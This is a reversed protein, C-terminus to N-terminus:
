LDSASSERIIRQKKIAFDITSALQELDVPKNLYDIAGYKMVERALDLDQVGTLVVVGVQYSMKRIKKLVELGSMGPMKLDLLMLDYHKASLIELAEQGSLATETEYGKEAMFEALVDCVSLEDDVILIRVM